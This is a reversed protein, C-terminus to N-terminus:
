SIQFNYCVILLHSLAMFLKLHVHTLRPGYESCNNTHMDCDLLTDIHCLSMDLFTKPHKSSKRLGLPFSFLRDKRLALLVKKTDHIHATCWQCVYVKQACWISIDQKTTITLPYWLIEMIFMNYPANKSVLIYHVHDHM